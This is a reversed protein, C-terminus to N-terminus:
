AHHSRTHPLATDAPRHGLPQDIAHPPMPVELDVVDVQLHDVQRDKGLGIMRAQPLVFAILLLGPARPDLAEVREHKDRRFVVVAGSRCQGVRNVIEEEFPVVLRHPQHTVAADRASKAGCLHDLQRSAAHLHDDDRFGDSDGEDPL